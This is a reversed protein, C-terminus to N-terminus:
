IPLACAVMFTCSKRDDHAPSDLHAQGDDDQGSSFAQADAAALRQAPEASAPQDVMRQVKRPPERRMDGDRHAGARAQGVHRGGLDLVLLRVPPLQCPEIDRKAM